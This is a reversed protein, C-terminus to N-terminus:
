AARFASMHQGTDACHRFRSVRGAGDFFWVHAEDRERIPHGTAKVTADFDILAVVVGPGELLAKPEFRQIELLALSAFFTAAGARGHQPQLWPVEGPAYAYDWAVEEALRELIAPVDQRGFAAYIAQVRDRNTM